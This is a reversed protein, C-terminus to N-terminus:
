KIECQTPDANLEFDHRPQHDDQGGGCLKKNNVLPAYVEGCRKCENKDNIKLTQLDHARKFAHMARCKALLAASLHGAQAASELASMPLLRLVSNELSFLTNFVAKDYAFAHELNGYQQLLPRAWLPCM